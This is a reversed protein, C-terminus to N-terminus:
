TEGLGWTVFKAAVTGYRPDEISERNDDYATIAFAFQLSPEDEFLDTFKQDPTFKSDRVSM